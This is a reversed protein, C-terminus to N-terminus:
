YQYEDDDDLSTDYQCVACVYTHLEIMSIVIYQKQHRHASLFIRALLHSLKRFLIVFNYINKFIKITIQM